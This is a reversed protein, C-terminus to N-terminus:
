VDLEVENGMIRRSGDCGKLDFENVIFSDFGPTHLSGWEACDKKGRNIPISDTQRGHGLNSAKSSIMLGHM